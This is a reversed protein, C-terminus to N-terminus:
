CFYVQTLLAQNLYYHSLKLGQCDRLGYLSVSVQDSLCGMPFRLILMFWNSLILKANADRGCNDSRM